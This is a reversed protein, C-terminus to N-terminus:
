SVVCTSRGCGYMDSICYRVNGVVVDLGEKGTM